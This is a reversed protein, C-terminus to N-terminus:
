TLSSDLKILPRVNSSQRLSEVAENIDELEFIKGLFCDLNMNNLAFLRSIKEATNEATDGGGWCGFIQKGSILEHPLLRIKDGEKPHSAFYLKGYNKNILSFATEISLATGGAEICVDAGNIFFDFFKDRFGQKDPNLVLSAGLDRALNLKNEDTDVAIINEINLAKCCILASLGVGGLGFIAISQNTKPKALNLVIGAGTPLACGLLSSLHIPFNTPKKFLKNESIIADTTFTVCSGANIKKGEDACHYIAPKADIGSTSIWTVIVEDGVKVKSVGRGISKVIGVGEHGLMHPLWHDEGRFGDIEMIQSRCISSYLFSVHVQGYTPVPLIIDKVSLPSKLKELVAAKAVISSKM